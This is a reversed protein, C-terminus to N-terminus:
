NLAEQCVARWEKEPVTEGWNVCVETDIEFHYPGRNKIPNGDADTPIIDVNKTICLPLVDDVIMILEHAPVELMVSDHVSLIIRSLLKRERLEYWINGLAASMADGVLGQCAWNQAEREQSALIDRERAPRFRRRGGFGNCLHQQKSVRARFSAFFDRLVPYKQDHGIVISKIQDITADPSEEWVQRLITEPSAGYYHGFRSRKAAVRLAKHKKKVESLPLNLKFADNALDSHLDLWEPHDEPLNNRRAHEILVPDGSFWAAACIEAGKLDTNVIYWGSRARFISRSVFQKKSEPSGEPANKEGWGLIRNYQEDVSGTMNQLNPGRSSSRGTEVLGFTSRIRGDHDLCSLLGKEHVEYGSDEDDEVYPTIDDPPRFMIKTGTNLFEIDRLLAVTENQRALHILTEKDVAPSPPTGGNMKFRMQAQDWLKGGTATTSKYPELYLSLASIPRLSNCDLYEEGFILEVKHRRKRPDFDPWNIEERLQNLLDDRRQLLASRLQKHQEVDIELGYREMEAWAAWARMRYGFIKRSSNGFRDRDLLGESQERPDGNFKLYLRGSVDCDLAAYPFIVEEPCNGYGTLESQKIKAQKCYSTKWNMIPIDYRDIGLVDAAIVELKRPKTEDVCHAAVYTDFGGEFYTKQWAYLNDEGNPNDDDKPGVFQDYVDIGISELWPLDAKAFHGVLRTMRSKADIFLKSLLKKVDNLPLSPNVIGGCKRLFVVRAHGPAHSWQVTYLYADPHTPHKGDWECDFAIYGGNASAKISEGVAVKLQELNYIAKYDCSQVDIKQTGFGFHKALLRTAQLMSPYKDTDRCISVPLETAIVSMTHMDPKSDTTPRLDLTLNAVRGRFDALKASKGFLAKLPDSGCIFLVEPRCIAIEQHILHLGDEVWTSPLRALASLPPDFRILSTMFVPLEKGIPPLGAEKWAEWLPSNNDGSFPKCDQVEQRNYNKGIIMVKCPSPGFLQGNEDHVLGPVLQFTEKKNSGPVDLTITGGTQYLACRVLATLNQTDVRQIIKKKTTKREQLEFADGLDYALKLYTPGPPAIGPASVPIIPMDNAIDKAARGGFYRIRISASSLDTESKNISM